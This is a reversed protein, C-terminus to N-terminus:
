DKEYISKNPFLKSLKAIMADNMAGDCTSFYKRYAIAAGISDYDQPVTMKLDPYFSGPIENLSCYLSKIAYGYPKSWDVNGVSNVFKTKNFTIPCHTDFNQGGGLISFTNQLTKRYNNSAKFFNISSFLAGKFHYEEVWPQLLFHDDNCYLFDDSVLRNHVAKVLKRFINREKASQEAQDSESLHFVRDIWSPKDGVIFVNGLDPFFKELSRLCYRLEIHNSATSRGLPIVVDM